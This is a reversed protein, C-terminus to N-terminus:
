ISLLFRYLRGEGSSAFGINASIDALAQKIRDARHTPPNLYYKPNNSEQGIYYMEGEFMIYYFKGKQVIATSDISHWPYKFLLDQSLIGLGHIKINSDSKYVVEFARSLQSHIQSLMASMGRKLVSAIGGFCIYKAGLNIYTELIDLTSFPPHFVPIPNLGESLMIKYYEVSQKADGIVDLAIYDTFYKKYKYIFSIYEKLEIPKKLMFASYAGSDLMLNSMKDKFFDAIGIFKDANMTRLKFYSVLFAHSNFFWGKVEETPKLEEYVGSHYYIV